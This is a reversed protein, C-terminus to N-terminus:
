LLRAVCHCVHLHMLYDLILATSYDALSAHKASAPQLDDLWVSGGLSTLYDVKALGCDLPVDRRGAGKM